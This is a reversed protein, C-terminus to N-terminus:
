QPASGPVADPVVARLQAAMAEISTLAERLRQPHDLGMEIDDLLRELPLRGIGM